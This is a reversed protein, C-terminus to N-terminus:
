ACGRVCRCVGVYMSVDVYVNMGVYVIVYALMCMYVSANGSMGANVYVDVYMFVGVDDDVCMTVCVYM